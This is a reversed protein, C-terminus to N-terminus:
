PHQVSYPGPLVPEDVKTEPPKDPEAKAATRESYIRFQVVLDLLVPVPKGDKIAPEFSAKRIVEVANEDLGFGIPRGVAIEAPKGDEGIVTHYLAMGSVAHAQAYENSQPELVTILKAKKDVMNQRLVAPDSPRFSTNSASAQYYLKWFAPMAAKLQDDIGSAFVRDLADKLVKAAHSPSTTATVSSPDAPREEPPAAAIQAKAQDAESMEAPQPTAPPAATAAPESKAPVGSDASKDDNKERKWHSGGGPAVVLERDITIKVMKKKPTINVREMSANTPDEDPAAGLFHLGYRAGELVLKHKGLHVRNIRIGNLTYSGRPSEGILAGLENFSLTNDLYGGRLYLPKGVLQQKIEAETFQFAPPFAAKPKQKTPPKAASPQSAVPAQPAAPAQVAPAPAPSQAADPTSTPAQAADPAASPAPQAAPPQETPAAQQAIAPSMLALAGYVAFVALLLRASPVFRLRSQFRSM